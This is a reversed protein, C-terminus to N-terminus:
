EKTVVEDLNLIVNMVATYAALEIPEFGAPVPSDGVELLEQAHEPSARFRDLNKRLTERVVALEAPEPSRATACRWAYALREDADAPGDRLIREALGRAAEVFTTDNLMTLAHLPTNTRRPAVSCVQRTSADFIMTPGVSRRWFTYVSRRYLAPGKDQEYQIKGLSFDTWVNSPQYPNVGPGGMADVYLGALMLAQDRLALSDLRFRPGRSLWRNDPDHEILEETVRSDRGYTESTLLLRHLRKVDFGTARFEVALWDLLEPHTPLEGQSGFDEPTRVLGSGFIQQWWRNVAVRMTLPNAPSVLWRALSLRNKPQDEPLTGLASPIGPELKESTDPKDYQGRVLVYTARPEARDALVMSELVSEDLSRLDKEAQSLQRRIEPRETAVRKFFDALVKNWSQPRSEPDVSMATLLHEPLEKDTALGPSPATTVSLRFKGLNHHVHGSQHHLRVTIVTGAPADLPKTFVFVAQRDAKIDDSLVAWGTAPDSDIALAVGHGRQEHDAIGRDIAVPASGEAGASALEVEIGTLVFNGSDSRALGGKTFDPHALAELRVGTVPAAPLEATITYTDQDPNAGSVFISLDDLVELNAGASSTQSIPVLPLWTPTLKQDAIRERLSKEWSQRASESLDPERQLQEQLSAIRGTLEARRKEQEPTPVKVVPNANGGRDVGGVEEVSNFYAFLRYYDRRTFPDYKHDHCRACGMTVGLWVTATTDVRDFCYDIRSEEPIRGGEGNLMHNRHFGTAIKDELTAEPVLDGATQDITFEDFPMNTNLARILWDRWPWMTRTGDNQYGNTDAYRAADLWPAAQHEGYRPSALYRDVWRDVADPGRDALFQDLEDITPPLGTLDFAIRRLLKARPAAPMPTLHRAMLTARVFLDIPNEVSEANPVEPYPPLRPPLFSWNQKYEAGSVVWQRLQEKQEPTLKRGSDPPPMQLDPDASDIRQILLSEDPKGPVVAAGNERQAWAGEALDLRLDAQREGEDPGHCHFCADSLISRAQVHQAGAAPTSPPDGTAVAFLLLFTCALAM